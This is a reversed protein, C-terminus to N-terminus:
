MEGFTVNCIGVALLELVLMTQPAVRIYRRPVTSGTCPGMGCGQKIEQIDGLTRLTMSPEVPNPLTGPWKPPM